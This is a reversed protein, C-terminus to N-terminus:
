LVTRSTIKFSCLSVGQAYRSRKLVNVRVTPSVVTIYQAFSFDNNDIYRLDRITLLKSPKIDRTTQSRIFDVRDSLQRLCTKDTFAPVVFPQSSVCAKASHSSWNRALWKSIYDQFTQLQELTGSWVAFIDDIFIFFFKLFDGGYQKALRDLKRLYINACSPAFGKGMATGCIQLFLRDDFEFVNNCPAIQLLM